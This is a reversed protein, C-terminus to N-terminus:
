LAGIHEINLNYRVKLLNNTYFLLSFYKAFKSLLLRTSTNTFAAKQSNIIEFVGISDGVENFVPVAILNQVATGVVKPDLEEKCVVESSQAFPEFVPEKSKFALGACGTTIDFNTAESKMPATDNTVQSLLVTNDELSKAYMM